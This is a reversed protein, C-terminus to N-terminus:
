RKPISPLILQMHRTGRWQTVSARYFRKPTTGMPTTERITTTESEIIFATNDWTGAAVTTSSQVTTTVDTATPKKAITVRIYDFGSINV